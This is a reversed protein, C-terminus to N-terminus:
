DDEEEDTDEIDIGSDKAMENLSKLFEKNKNVDGWLDTRHHNYIQETTNSDYFGAIKKAQRFLDEIAQKMERGEDAEDSIEKFAAAAESLLTKMNDSGEETVHWGDKIYRFVEAQLREKNKPSAQGSYDDKIMGPNEERCVETYLDFASALDPCHRKGITAMTRSMGSMRFYGEVTFLGSVGNLGKFDLNETFHELVAGYKNVDKCRDVWDRKQKGALGSRGKLYELTLPTSWKGLADLIEQHGDMDMKEIGEDLEEPLAEDLEKDMLDVLEKIEKFSIGDETEAIIDKVAQIRKEHAQSDKEEPQKENDSDKTLLGEALVESDEAEEQAEVATQQTKAEAAEKEKKTEEKKEKTDKSM